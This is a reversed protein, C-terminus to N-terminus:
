AAGLALRDCDLGLPEHTAAIVLGGAAAHAAAAEAVLAKGAADLAALPEDLLWVPRGSLALRALALRRKQGASLVVGRLDALRAIGFRKLAARADLGSGYVDAWFAAQEAVTLQAKIGDLHGLWGILAGRDEPEEAMTGDRCIEIRGSEPALLGAIARLLTTKGSGNPGELALVTGGERTLSLGSLVTRGGRVVTLKEIALTLTM